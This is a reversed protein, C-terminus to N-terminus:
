CLNHGIELIPRFKRVGYECVHDRVINKLSQQIGSASRLLL